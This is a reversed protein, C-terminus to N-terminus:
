FACMFYPSYLVDNGRAEYCLVSADDKIEKIKETMKVPEKDEVNNKIDDSKDMASRLPKLRDIPVTNTNEESM